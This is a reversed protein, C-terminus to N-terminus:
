IFCKYKEYSKCLLFLNKKQQFFSFLNNELLRTNQRNRPM